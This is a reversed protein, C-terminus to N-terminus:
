LSNTTESQCSHMHRPRQYTQEPMRVDPFRRFLAIQQWRSFCIHSYHGEEGQCVLVRGIERRKALVSPM